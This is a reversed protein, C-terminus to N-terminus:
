DVEKLQNFFPHKAMLQANQEQSIKIYKMFARDSRHGTIKMISIAPIGALYALTAFTRRSTHSSVLEYKKHRSSVKKNFVTRTLTVYQDIGAEKAVEKLYENYKQNSPVSPLQNQYKNFIESVMWHLPIAILEGEGKQTRIKFMNGNLNDVNIKHLDGFRVGTRCGLILLDRIKDLKRNDSFDKSWIKLLDDETLYVHDIEESVKKFRKNLFDTNTHLKRDYAANMFTKLIKIRVGITNLSFGAQQLYEYFSDYWDLTIDEFTFQKNRQKEFHILSGNKIADPNKWNGIFTKYGRKTNNKVNCSEAYDIAFPVLFKLKADYVVKEPKFGKDLEQKFGELQPAEDLQKYITSTKTYISEFKKLVANIGNIQDIKIRNGKAKTIDGRHHKKDWYIPEIKEGTSYKLRRNSGSLRIIFNIPSPDKTRSNALTFTYSTNM